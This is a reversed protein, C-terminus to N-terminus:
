EYRLAILPDVKAVRRAPLYSALLGVAALIAPLALFVVPDTPKVGYLLSALAPTAALSGAWGAAIGAAVPVAGQRLMLRVADQPRAGLAMRIGIEHSRQNVTYAVVGYIGIAALLLALAAFVSLLTTSFRTRVLSDELFHEMSSFRYVPLNGDLAQVERRIDALSVGGPSRMVVSM